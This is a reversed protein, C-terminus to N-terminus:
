QEKNSDPCERVKMDFVPTETDTNDSVCAPTPMPNELLWKELTSKERGGDDVSDEYRPRKRSPEERESRRTSESERESSGESIYGTLTPVRFVHPVDIPNLEAWKFFERVEQKTVKGFDPGLRHTLNFQFMRDELPQRHETTTTNGDVVITLDTNSTIIVPTSEIQQSSKCKQDVRVRSGGLICKAAEVVKATMKGEEWWILMKNVSDNFPFNENNWNVCGYFPVAHAIAEAIITKGTTAPGYLWITNRKGFQRKAWGYLISGALRPDYGNMEFIRYVRNTSVDEPPKPGILYDSATKTLQMIRSANDLATKIQARSSSSANHTLFSEMDTKVWEQESTIGNEVLWKVLAMYRESTKNKVRPVDGESHAPQEEEEEKQFQQRYEDVLRQRENLNVAALLFKDINTWAYQLEPQKKPLLYNYLYSEHRLANAGGVKRTKAVDFWLDISPTVGCYVKDVIRQRIGPVYRGFVFSKVNSQELLVHLHYGHEGKELQIFYEYRVGTRYKWELLIENVIRQGLAVYTEEIQNADLDSTDPLTLNEACLADIWADCIGPLETDFDNPLKVIIEYFYMEIKCLEDWLHRIVNRVSHAFESKQKRKESVTVKGDDKAFRM